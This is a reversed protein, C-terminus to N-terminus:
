FEDKIGLIGKECCFSFVDFFFSITPQRSIGYDCRSGMSKIWFDDRLMFNLCFYYFFCFSSILISINEALFMLYFAGIRGFWVFVIGFLIPEVAFKHRESMLDNEFGSRECCLDWVTFRGSVWALWNKWRVFQRWFVFSHNWMGVGWYILVFIPLFVYLIEVVWFIEFIDVYASYGGVGKFFLVMYYNKVLLDFCNLQRSVMFYSLFIGYFDFFKKSWFICCTFKWRAFLCCGWNM